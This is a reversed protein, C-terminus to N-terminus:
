WMVVVHVNHHTLTKHPYPTRNLIDKKNVDAGEGILQQAKEVDGSRAVAHLDM